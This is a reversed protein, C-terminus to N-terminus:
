APALEWGLGAGIAISEKLTARLERTRSNFEARQKETWNAKIRHHRENSRAKILEGSKEHCQKLYERKRAKREATLIRNM